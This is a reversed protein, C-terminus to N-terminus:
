KPAVLQECYQTVREANQQWTFSKDIITQQVNQQLLERKADDTLLMEIKRAFDESDGHRFMACDHGDRLIENINRTDPAVIAKGLVMYEFMKLPSAYEVVSPQLAIDFAAVYDRVQDRTVVGTIRVREEVGLDKAREELVDRAPGDGVLLAVRNGSSDKAVLDVLQELGHWERMFGTFGLVIRGDLGLREKATAVDPAESFRKIDIGNHIVFMDSSRGSKAKIIDALVATVPLVIDANKWVYNESWSALRNLSVGGFKNREDYLPANVESIMPLGYRKKIWVGAPLFMNYREYLCDPRHRVVAARLKWFAIFSYSFEMLEYLWKPCLKRLTAVFGGESGFEHRDVFAPGVIILEHGLDALAKTLEEIHVYQGDKSAIRHHYLIKM